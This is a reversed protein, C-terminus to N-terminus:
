CCCTECTNTQDQLFNIVLVGPMPQTYFSQPLAIMLNHFEAVLFGLVKLAEGEQIEHCTCSEQAGQRRMSKSMGHQLASWVCPARSSSALPM